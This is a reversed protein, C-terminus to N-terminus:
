PPDRHDSPPGAPSAPGPSVDSAPPAAAIRHRAGGLRVLFRGSGPPDEDLLPALSAQAARSFRAVEGGPLRCRLAGDSGLWLSAPDLPAERGGALRLRAGAGDVLLARVTWPTEAVAVAGEERGIRVRWGGRGDRQLSGWLVDLTRAHTVPEGRHLFRGEDDISLGSSARLRELSAPDDPV